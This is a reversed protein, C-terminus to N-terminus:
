AVSDQLQVGTTWWVGGGRGGGRGGKGWVRVSDAQRRRHGGIKEKKESLYFINKKKWNGRQVCFRPVQVNSYTHTHVYSLHVCEHQKEKSNQLIFSRTSHRPRLTMDNSSLSFLLHYDLLQTFTTVMTYIYYLYIYIYVFRYVYFLAMQIQFLDTDIHNKKWIYLEIKMMKESSPLSIQLCRSLDNNIRSHLLVSTHISEDIIEFFIIESQKATVFRLDECGDQWTAWVGFTKPVGRRCFLSQQFHVVAPKPCIKPHRHSQKLCKCM